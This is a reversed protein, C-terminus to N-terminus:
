RIHEWSGREYGSGRAMGPRVGVRWARALRQIDLAGTHVETLM